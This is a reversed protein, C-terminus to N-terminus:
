DEKPWAFGVIEDGDTILAVGECSEFGILRDPLSGDGTEIVPVIGAEILPRFHDGPAPGGADLWDAAVRIQSTTLDRMELVNTM